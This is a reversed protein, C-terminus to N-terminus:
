HEPIQEPGNAYRSPKSQYKSQDMLMDELSSQYKSQDDLLGDNKEGLGVYCM